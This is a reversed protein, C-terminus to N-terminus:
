PRDQASHWVNLITVNGADDLEYVIVYPRITVLERTSPDVGRRGRGPFVALSDGAVVLEQGIQRAAVPNEEAIYAVLRAVDAIARAQWIVRV